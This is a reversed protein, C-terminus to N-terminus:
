IRANSVGELDVKILVQPNFKEESRFDWIQKKVDLHVDLWAELKNMDWHRRVGGKRYTINGSGTKLSEARQLVLEKIKDQIKQSEESYPETIRDIDRTLAQIQEVQIKTADKMALSVQKLHDMLSYLEIEIDPKEM